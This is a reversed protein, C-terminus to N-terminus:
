PFILEREAFGGPCLAELAVDGFAGKGSNADLGQLLEDADVEDEVVSRRVEGSRADVGTQRGGEDQLDDGVDDVDDGRERTQVADVAEASAGHQQDASEAHTDRLVDDRGATDCGREGVLGRGRRLEREDADVDEEEGRGEAWTGPDHCALDEREFHAGLTERQRGRGVPEHVPQQREDHRVEETLLVAVKATVHEPDPAAEAPDRDRKDEEEDVLGLAETQLLDALQIISTALRPQRILRSDLESLSSTIIDASLHTDLLILIRSHPM